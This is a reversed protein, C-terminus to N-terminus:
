NKLKKLVAFPHDSEQAECRCLEHNLDAGCHMCLGACDSRCLPFGALHLIMEERLLSVMDIRADALYVLDSEMQKEGSLAEPEHEMIFFRELDFSLPHSFRTLCRSCPQQLQTNVPGHIRLRRGDRFLTLCAHVPDLLKVQEGLDDFRDIQASGDIIWPNPKFRLGNVVLQSFDLHADITGDAVPPYLQHAM